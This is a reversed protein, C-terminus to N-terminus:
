AASSCIGPWNRWTKARNKPPCCCNSDTRGTFRRLLALQREPLDSATGAAWRTGKATRGFPVTALWAKFEVPM